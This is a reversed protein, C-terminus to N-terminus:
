LDSRAFVRQGHAADCLRAARIVAPGFYDGARECATGTHMGMRVRLLGIVPWAADLPSLQATRATDVAAAADV